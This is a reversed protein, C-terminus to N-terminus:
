LQRWTIERTSVVIVPIRNGLYPEYYSFLADIGHPQGKREKKHRSCTIDFNPTGHLKWGLMSLLAVTEQTWREGIINSQEPM